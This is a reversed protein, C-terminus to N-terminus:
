LNVSNPNSERPRGTSGTNRPDSQPSHSLVLMVKSFFPLKNNLWKQGVSLDPGAKAAATMHLISCKNRRSSIPKLSRPCHYYASDKRLSIILNDASKCM